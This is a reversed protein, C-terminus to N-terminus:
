EPSTGAKPKTSPSLAAQTAAVKTSVKPSEVLIPVAQPLTYIEIPPKAQGLVKDRVEVLQAEVRDANAPFNSERLKVMWTTGIRCQVLAALHERAKIQEKSEKPFWESCNFRIRMTIALGIPYQGNDMIILCRLLRCIFDYDPNEPKVTAEPLSVTSRGERGAINWAFAQWMLACASLEDNAVERVAALGRAAPKCAAKLAKRDSAVKATALIVQFPELNSAAAELKRRRQDGASGAAGPVAPTPQSAAPASATAPIRNLLLRAEKLHSQAADASDALLKLDAESAMGLIWKTAPRATPVALLWNALALHAAARDQPGEASRIASELEQRQAERAKAQDPAEAWMAATDLAFRTTPQTDVPATFPVQARAVAALIPLLVVGSLLTTRTKM